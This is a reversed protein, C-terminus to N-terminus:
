RTTTGSGPSKADGRTLSFCLAVVSMLLAALYCVNMASVFASPHDPHPTAGPIGAYHRFAITLLMGGVSIGLIHGLGFITHIIGTAFGRDEKPLAGFIATHNPANFLANGMGTLGLMATPLLWHSDVRLFVGLLSSILLPIVGITAPIRPGIRDALHGGLPALAITFVPATLFIIGIFSPALHLVEQLYFPMVFDVLGYTTALAFASIISYAFIRIRFLSLNIMPSPARSEHVLFGLLMGALALTLVSMQGAGVREAVRQDLLIILMIMLAIFMASGAYDVPRRATRPGPAIGGGLHLSTLIIGAVGIPVILFFIWRWNLHDIILGGLPPGVFFGSHFAMTMLGQARGVSGEPMAEIALARGASQTMASGVGQLFRFAILQFVNQALGCLAASATITLFGLGYIQNRGYIDGLRGFVISLSISALQFSIIAWSVGLIDTALGDAVSPLGILFTRTSVGALFNGLMANALVLWEIRATM